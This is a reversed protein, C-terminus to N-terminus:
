FKNDCIVYILISFVKFTEEVNKRKLDKSEERRQSVNLCFTLRRTNVPIRLKQQVTSISCKRVSMTMMKMVMMMMVKNEAVKLNYQYSYHLM